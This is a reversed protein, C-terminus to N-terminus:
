PRRYGNSRGTPGGSPKWLPELTQDELPPDWTGSAEQHLAVPLWEKVLEELCDGCVSAKLRVEEEERFLNLYARSSPGHYRSNHMDCPYDAM